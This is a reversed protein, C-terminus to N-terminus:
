KVRRDVKMLALHSVKKAIWSDIESERWGIARHSLKIPAPFSGEGVMMYITSKSMGTRRVVDPLRLVIDSM